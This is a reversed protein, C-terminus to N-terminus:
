ASSLIQHHRAHPISGRERWGQVTSVAIGLKSAMPRIGGFKAIIDHALQDGETDGDNGDGPAAAEQPETSDQATMEGEVTAREAGAAMDEICALLADQNPEAAVRVDRWSLVGAKDAVAKSLCVAVLSTCVPGLGEDRLLKVFTEATRPSFFTAADVQGRELATRLAPSLAEPARTEYLTERRVTFGAAELAGKLDGALARAAGHFLAGDSPTLRQAVLRALDDVDGGASTVAAFGAARAAEASADGVAFVPLDRRESLRAFARVGNASTFLVAQVATLDLPTAAEGLFAVHLMPEVVAEHGRAALAAVLPEADESPRTVLVRM